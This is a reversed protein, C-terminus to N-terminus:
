GSLWALAKAEETFVQNDVADERSHRQVQLKGALSRVLVARREFGALMQARHPAFAREFEPDNRSPAQRTDVLVRYSARRVSDLHANLSRLSEHLEAITAFPENSRTVRVIRTGPIGGVTFHRTTYALM